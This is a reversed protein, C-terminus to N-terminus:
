PGWSNIAAPLKVSKEPAIAKVLLKRPALFLPELSERSAYAGWYYEGDGLSTVELQQEPTDLTIVAQALLDPGTAVVLRYKAPTALAQWSFTVHATAGKASVVEGDRPGVLLDRPGEQDVFIRRAFGPEGLRGKADRSAVRWSYVGPGPPTFDFGSGTSMGSAVLRQFTIDSALQVQYGTAGQIEKWAVHISLEKSYGLHVDVAPELSPPFEILDEVEEDGSVTTTQGASVTRVGKPGSLDAAGATIAVEAPKSAEHSLRFTVQKEGARATLRLRNGDGTDIILPVLELGSASSALEGRVTGSEVRVLPSQHAGADTGAEPAVQDIVVLSAESVELGGGSRFAIKAFGRNGTRVWDGARLPMGVAIPQFFPAGKRRVEGPPIFEACTAVISALAEVAELPPTSPLPEKQCSSCAASLLAASIALAAAHRLPPRKM